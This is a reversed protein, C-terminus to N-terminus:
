VEDRLSKKLASLALNIRSKVTGLPIELVDAVEQYRLGQYINLVIVERLKPSLEALAAEVDDRPVRPEPVPQQVISVERELVSALREFRVIRRGRDAWVNRALHYLFTTFRASPRYQVRFRYVRLFTEQVLDEGDSSAGMRIFFNLLAQQHRQVLHTFATESGTAVELMIMVDPDQPPLSAELLVERKEDPLLAFDAPAAVAAPYM